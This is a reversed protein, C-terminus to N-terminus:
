GGSATALLFRGRYVGPEPEVGRLVIHLDLNAVAADLASLLAEAGAHAGLCATLLDIGTTTATAGAESGPALPVSGGGSLNM